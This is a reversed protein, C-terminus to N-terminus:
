PFLAGETRIAGMERTPSFPSRQSLSCSELAAIMQAARLLRMSRAKAPDMRSQIQIRATGPWITLLASVRKSKRPM